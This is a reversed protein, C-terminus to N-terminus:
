LTNQKFNADRHHANASTQYSISMDTILSHLQLRGLIFLNMIKLNITGMYMQFRPLELRGGHTVWVPWLRIPYRTKMHLNADGTTQSCMNSVSQKNTITAFNNTRYSWMSIRRCQLKIKLNIKLECNAMWIVFSSAM